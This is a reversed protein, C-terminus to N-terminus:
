NQISSLYDKCLFDATGATTYADVSANAEISKRTFSRAIECDKSYFVLESIGRLSLADTSGINEPQNVLELIEKLREKDKERDESLNMRLKLFLNYARQRKIIPNDEGLELALDDTIAVSNKYGEPNFKRWEDQRKYM